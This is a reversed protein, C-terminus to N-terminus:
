FPLSVKGLVSVTGKLVYLSQSFPSKLLMVDGTVRSNFKYSQLATNFIYILYINSIISFYNLVSNTGKTYLQPEYIKM